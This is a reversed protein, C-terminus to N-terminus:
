CDEVAEVYISDTYASLQTDQVPDIFKLTAGSNMEYIGSESYEQHGGPNTKTSVLLILRATEGPLLDGINWTLFVKKSKGKTYDWDWTGHTISVENIGEKEPDADDIEIEAGFHDTIVTDEMTYDFTNIVDIVLAWQVDTGVKVTLSEEAQEKILEQIAEPIDGAETLEYYGGDTEDAMYTWPYKEGSWGSYVAMIHVDAAAANAVETEFDLDDGTGLVTDRGPDGGTNEPLGDDDNDFNTDHPVNDGFLILFRVADTRWHLNPDNWSEHIIRTYDQPDDGGWGNILGTINEEMSTTDDTIDVDLNYPYDGYGVWGYTANYWTGTDSSYTSYYGDYDMYTILGFQVDAIQAALNNMITTANEKVEDIEELMSGTLDIAFVVDAKPIGVNKHLEEFPLITFCAQAEREEVIVKDEYWTGKVLNCVEMEEWSKAEDVKVDFEITYDGATDLDYTVIKLRPPPPPTKKITPTKPVGNVTFTGKIYSLQLPLTDEVTVTQGEGVRVDITVHVVTGLGGEEPFLRKAFPPPPTVKELTLLAWITSLIEGSMTGWAGFGPWGPPWVYCPSSEWSGDSRQRDVIVEAFEAYWDHTSSGGSGSLDITDIGSYELGKMLCYIAQYHVMGMDEDVLSDGDDDGGGYPDEDIWSDSDDDVGWDGIWGPQLNADQWHTEIYDMANQFRTTSPVDGYFTMEFILNGTKLENIWFDTGWGTSYASGGNADNQIYDIWVDLETKVWNPVTCGFAEAAALGLYAYGSNSNDAGSGSDDMASYYYGGEANGTDAQAWALWDVVDQAIEGFTDANGDGDYDISGENVHSPDGSAALAMLGIGTYYITSGSFYIGYGNVRTDPNDVTGSAGGTHDQNDISQKKIYIPYGGGDVSFLYEWGDIVNTAYEYYDPETEDTEFPDLGKDYARDQLKILVFATRPVDQWKGTSPDQQSVLWAVGADIADQIEQETVPTASGIFGSFGVSCVMVAILVMTLLKGKRM